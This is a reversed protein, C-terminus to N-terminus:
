RVINLRHPNPADPQGYAAAPGSTRGLGDLDRRLRSRETQLLEVLRRDAVAATQQLRSVLALAEASAGGQRRVRAVLAEIRPRLEDRAELAGELADLDHGVIADAADECYSTWNRLAHQLEKGAALSDGQGSGPGSRPSRHPIM